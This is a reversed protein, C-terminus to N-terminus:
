KMDPTVPWACPMPAAWTSQLDKGTYVAVVGPMSAADSVDISKIRAHAYPSRLVALHLAGPIALDNVFKAEGTLLAPDERRLMRQGIVNNTREETISM